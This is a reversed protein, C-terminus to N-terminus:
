GTKRRRSRGNEEEGVLGLDRQKEVTLEHQKAAFIKQNSMSFHVLMYYPNQEIFNRLAVASGFGTKGVIVFNINAELDETRIQDLEFAIKGFEM